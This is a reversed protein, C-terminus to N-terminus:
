RSIRPRRAPFPRAGSQCGARDRGRSRARSIAGYLASYGTRADSGIHPRQLGCSANTVTMTVASGSVTRSYSTAVGSNTVSTVLGGSLTASLTDASAGPRRISYGGAASTVRWIRDLPDHIDVIGGAFYQYTVSALPSSSRAVNYFSAGNRQYFSAPVSGSPFSGAVSQYTFRIEYGFSNTM